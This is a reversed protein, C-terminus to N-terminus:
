KYTSKGCAGMEETLLVVCFLVCVRSREQVCQEARNDVWVWVEPEPIGGWGGDGGV